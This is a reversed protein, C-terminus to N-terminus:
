KQTFIYNKVHLLFRKKFIIYIIYDMYLRVNKEEMFRM